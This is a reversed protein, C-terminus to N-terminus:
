YEGELQSNPVNVALKNVHSQHLPVSLIKTMIDAIQTTSSVKTPIIRGAKIEDRIYHCDVDVHKTKEHLVPNAAIALAAQNDCHLIAPPIHGFGLDKLLATLWTIECTTLAM